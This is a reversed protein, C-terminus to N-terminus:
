EAIKFESADIDLIRMRSRLTEHNVQLLQAASNKGQVKGKSKRLAEIIEEYTLKNRKYTTHNTKAFPFVIEDKNQVIAEFLGEEISMKLQRVNGKWSYDMLERITKYSISPPNKLVSMSIIQAYFYEILVKIDRKRDKLSPINITIGKLRYYLDERFEGKKVLEELNKHTAAIIRINLHIVKESGIKQITRNELVRLLRAQTVPSLDAVEDLFLTGFNAQEFYGKKSHTAGTFAGKEYGFLESEVLSEPIASCNIEVFSNLNRHSLNHLANAVLEKGTGTAGNILITAESPAILEIKKVIDQLDPCRRLLEEPSDAQIFKSDIFVRPEPNYKAIDFLLKSLYPRVVALIEKHEETFANKEPSFSIFCLIESNKEEIDLIYLIISQFKMTLQKFFDFAPKKPDDLISINHLNNKLFAETIHEPMLNDIKISYEPINTSLHNEIFIKFTKTETNLKTCISNTIPLHKNMFEFFFTLGEERTKNQMASEFLDKYIEIM